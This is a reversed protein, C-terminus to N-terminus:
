SPGIARRIINALTETDTLDSVSYRKGNTLELRVHRRYSSKYRTIVHDVCAIDAFRILRNGTLKQHRFGREFITVQQRWRAACVFLMLGGIAWCILLLPVGMTLGEVLGSASKLASVVNAVGAVVLLLGVYIMWGGASWKGRLEAVPRGLEEQDMPGAQTM